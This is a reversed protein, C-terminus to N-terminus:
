VYIPIESRPVMSATASVHRILDTRTDPLQIGIINAHRTINAIINPTAIKGCLLAHSYAVPVPAM